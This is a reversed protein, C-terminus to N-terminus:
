KKGIFGEIQMWEICLRPWSSVEGRDTGLGFGHGGKQFVHLEFPVGADHLAKFFQISERVNVTRDDAGNVIFTPATRRNVLLYFPVFSHDAIDTKYSAATITDADPHEWNLAPYVLMAFDPRDSERVNRTELDAAVQGGASFGMVGVKDLDIRYREAKGRIVEMSREADMLADRLNLRYKLVFAAIGNKNLWKAVLTGEKRFCVYRFGGGPIILVAPSKEVKKGPLFVTLDPQYVDHIRNDIIRENDKTGLTGPALGPWIRLVQQCYLPFAPLFLITCSVTFLALLRVIPPRSKTDSRSCPLIRFRIM